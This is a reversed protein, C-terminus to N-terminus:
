MGFMGNQIGMMIVHMGMMRGHIGIMGSHMGMMGMGYLNMAPVVYNGFVGPHMGAGNKMMWHEDTVNQKEESKETVVAKKDQSVEEKEEEQARTLTKLAMVCYRKSHAEEDPEICGLHEDVLDHQSARMSEAMPIVEKSNVM